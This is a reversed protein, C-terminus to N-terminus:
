TAIPLGALQRRLLDLGTKAIRPGLVDPHGGMRISSRHAGNPGLIAFQPEFAETAQSMERGTPYVGVVLAYDTQFQNKAAEALSAMLKEDNAASAWHAAASPEAFALSGKVIKESGSM